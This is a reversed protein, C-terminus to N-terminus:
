TGIDLSGHFILPGAEPTCVDDKGEGMAPSMETDNEEM